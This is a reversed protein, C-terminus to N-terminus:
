PVRHLCGASEVRRLAPAPLGYARRGPSLAGLGLAALSVDPDRYHGLMITDVIIQFSFLLFSIIAPIALAMMKRFMAQQPTPSNDM